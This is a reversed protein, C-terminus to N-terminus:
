AAFTRYRPYVQPSVPQSNAQEYYGISSPNPDVRHHYSAPPRQQQPTHYQQQQRPNNPPPMSNFQPRTQPLARTQAVPQQPRYQRQHQYRQPQTKLNPSINSMMPPRPHQPQANFPVQQGGGANYDQRIMHQQQYGHQRQDLINNSYVVASSSSPPATSMMIPDERREEEQPEMGAYRDEREDMSEVSFNSNVKPVSPTFVKVPPKVQYNPQWVQEVGRQSTPSVTQPPSNMQISPSGQYGGGVQRVVQNNGQYIGVQQQPSFHHQQQPQVSTQFHEVQLHQSPHSPTQQPQQSVNSQERIVPAPTAAQKTQVTDEVLDRWNPNDDLAAPQPQAQQTSPYHLSNDLNQSNCYQPNVSCRGMTNRFMTKMKSSVSENENSAAVAVAKKDGNDNNKDQGKEEKGLVLSSEEEEVVIKSTTSKNSSSNKRADRMVGRGIAKLLSSDLTSDDADNNQVKEEKKKENKVEQLLMEATVAEKTKGENSTTTSSVEQGKNTSSVATGSKTTNDTGDLSIISEEKNSSSYDDLTTSGQSEQFTSSCDDTKISTETCNLLQTAGCLRWFWSEGSPEKDPTKEIVVKKKKTTTSSKEKTKEKPSIDVVKSKTTTTDKKEKLTDKQKKPTSDKIKTDRKKSEKKSKKDDDNQPFLVDDVADLLGYMSMISPSYRDESEVSRGRADNNSQDAKGRLQAYSSANSSVSDLIAPMNKQNYLMEIEYSDLSETNTDYYYSTSYSSGSGSSGSSTGGSSNTLSGVSSSTRRHHHKHKTTHNPHYDPHRKKTHKSQTSPLTPSKNRISQIASKAATTLGVKKSKNLSKCVQSIVEQTQQENNPSYTLVKEKNTDHEEPVTKVKSRTATAAQKNETAPKQKSIKKSRKKKQKKVNDSSSKKKRFKNLLRSGANSSSAATSVTANATSNAVNAKTASKNSPHGSVVVVKGSKNKKTSMSTKPTDKDASIKPPTALSAKDSGVGNKKSNNDSPSSITNSDKGSKDSGGVTSSDSEKKKSKLLMNTAVQKAAAAAESQTGGKHIVEKAAALAKATVRSTEDTPLQQDTPMICVELTITSISIHKTYKEIAIIRTLL